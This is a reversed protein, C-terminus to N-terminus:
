GQKFCAEHAIIVEEVGHTRATFQLIILSLKILNIINVILPCLTKNIYMPHYIMIHENAFEICIISEVTNYNKFVRGFCLITQM